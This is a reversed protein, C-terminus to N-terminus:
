WSIKRADITEVGHRADAQKTRDQAMQDFEPDVWSEFKYTVDSYMIAHTEILSLIALRRGSLPARGTQPPGGKGVVWYAKTSLSGAPYPERGHIADVQTAFSRLLDRVVKVYVSPKTHEAEYAAWIALIEYDSRTALTERLGQAQVFFEDALGRAFVTASTDGFLLKSHSKIALAATKTAGTFFVKGNDFRAFTALLFKYEDDRLLEKLPALKKVLGLALGPVLTGLGVEVVLALMEAQKKAADKLAIANEIVADQFSSAAALIRERADLVLKDRDHPALPLPPLAGPSATPGGPVPAGKAGGVEMPGLVQQDQGPVPSVPQPRQVGIGRLQVAQVRFKPDSSQLAFTSARAGGTTPKFTARLATTGGAPVQLPLGTAAKLEFDAIDGEEAWLDGIQLAASGPNTAAVEATATMGLPVAAFQVRPQLELRAAPRAKRGGRHNGLGAATALAANDSGFAVGFGLYESTAETYPSASSAGMGPPLQVPGEGAPGDVAASPSRLSETRTHRGPTGPAPAWHDQDHQRDDSPRRQHDVGVGDDHQSM